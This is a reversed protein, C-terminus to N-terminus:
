ARYTGSSDISRKVFLHRIWDDKKIIITDVYEFDERSLILKEDTSVFVFCRSETRKLNTDIVAFILIEDNIVKVALVEALVPMEIEFDKVWGFDQKAKYQAITKMINM